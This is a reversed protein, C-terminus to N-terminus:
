LLGPSGTIRGAPPVSAWATWRGNVYSATLLDGGARGVLDIRGPVSSAAAPASDFKTRSDVQSWLGWRGGDLTRVYLLGDTGVSFLDIRGPRPSAVAPDGKTHIGTLRQWQGYHGSATRIVYWVDSDEGRAF